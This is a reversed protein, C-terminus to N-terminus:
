SNQGIDSSAEPDSPSATNRMPHETIQQAIQRAEAQLKEVNVSPLAPFASILEEELAEEPTKCPAGQMSLDLLGAKQATRVADGLPLQIPVFYEKQEEAVPAHRDLFMVSKQGPNEEAVRYMETVVDLPLECTGQGYMEARFSVVNGAYGAEKLCQEWAAAAEEEASERSSEARVRKQATHSASYNKLIFISPLKYQELIKRFLETLMTRAQRDGEPDEKDLLCVGDKVEWEMKKSFDTGAIVSQNAREVLNDLNVTRGADLIGAAEGCTADCLVCRGAASGAHSEAWAHIAGDDAHRSLSHIDVEYGRQRLSTAISSLKEGTYSDNERVLILVSRSEIVEKGEDRDSGTAPRNMSDM